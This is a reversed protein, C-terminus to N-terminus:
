ENGKDEAQIQVNEVDIEPDVKPEGEKMEIGSTATEEIEQYCPMKKFILEPLGCFLVFSIVISPICIGVFM